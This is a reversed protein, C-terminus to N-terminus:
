FESLKQVKTENNYGPEIKQKYKAKASIKDSLMCATILSRHDYDHNLKLLNYM